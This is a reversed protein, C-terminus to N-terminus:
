IGYYRDLDISMLSTLPTVSIVKDFHVAYIDTDAPANHLQESLQWDLHKGLNFDRDGPQIYAGYNMYAQKTIRIETTETLGKPFNVNLLRVQKPMGNNIVNKMIQQIHYKEMTWDLTMFNDSKQDKMPISRSFAIGPIGFSDAELIAGVTGSCTLALGLNEGYNIGSICFDPKKPLLELLGYAVSQAPSGYVSYGEILHNDITFVRKKIIGVPEGSLSGRGMGTQQFMPAVIVVDCIPALAEALAFLGPSDIGDDNTVLILPKIKGEDDTSM